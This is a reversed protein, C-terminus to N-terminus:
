KRAHGDTQIPWITANDTPHRGEKFARTVRGLYGPLVPNYLHTAADWTKWQGPILSPPPAPNNIITQAKHYLWCTGWMIATSAPAADADPYNLVRVTNAPFVVEYETRGDHHLIALINDGANGITMIDENGQPNKGIESETMGIAKLREVDDVAHQYIQSWYDFAAKFDDDYQNFDYDSNGTKAYKRIRKEVTITSSLGFITRILSDAHIRVSGDNNFVAKITKTYGESAKLTVKTINPTVTGNETTGFDFMKVSGRSGLIATKMSAPTIDLDLVIDKSSTQSDVHADITIDIIEDRKVSTNSTTIEIRPAYVTAETTISLAGPGTIKLKLLSTMTSEPTPHTEDVDPLLTSTAYVAYTKTGDDENLTIPSTEDGVKVLSEDWSLERAAGSIGTAHVTITASIDAEERLVVGGPNM